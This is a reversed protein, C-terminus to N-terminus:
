KTRGRNQAAAEHRGNVLLLRAVCRGGGGLPIREGLDLGLPLSIPLLFLSEFSELTVEGLGLFIHQVHERVGAPGAEVHAM